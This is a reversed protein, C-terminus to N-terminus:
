KIKLIKIKIICCIKGNFWFNYKYKVFFNSILFYIFWKLKLITFNTFLSGESNNKKDSLIKNMEMYDLNYIKFFDLYTLVIMNQFAVTTGFTYINSIETM